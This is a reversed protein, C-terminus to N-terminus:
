GAASWMAGAARSRPNAEIIERGSANECRSCNQKKRPLVESHPHLFYRTTSARMQPTSRTKVAPAPIIRKRAAARQLSTKRPQWGERARTICTDTLQIIAL